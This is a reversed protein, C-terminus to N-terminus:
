DLNTRFKRATTVPAPPKVAASASPAGKSASASAAAPAAPAKAPAEATGVVVRGAAPATAAPANKRAPASGTTAATDDKAVAGGAATGDKAPASGTTAATDDKAPASGTTAATDDKAAAGGAATTDGAKTPSVATPAPTVEGLSPEASVALARGAADTPSGFGGRTAVGVLLGIVAVALAGGVVMPARSKKRTAASVAPGPVSPPASARSPEARSSDLLQTAGHSAARDDKAKKADLAAMARKAIEPADESWVIPTGGSKAAPTSATTETQTKALAPTPPGVAEARPQPGTIPPRLRSVPYGGSVNRLPPPESPLTVAFALSARGQAAGWASLAEQFERASGYRQEADRALGKTVLAAFEEDVDPVLERIPRPEELVIKFLLEHLNDGTHPMAGTLARYFIVSAAYLDTRGDVDRAGRAQEPSMYLPTGMMMGTSTMEGPEDARPLIKAVGFDLIKVIESKGRGRALFVNAPKLDRHVVGAQHMTGLGELIEFAIPALEAATLTTKDLRDELSEGDLFEMVIFREGNPLDGLDLVDCVHPSGIRASARAEREFRQAFESSSAVHDHLVKIAVRREIRVNEGEFVTGMGGEGIRRVVRYKGDIVTGPEISTPM